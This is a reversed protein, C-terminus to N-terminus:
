WVLPLLRYRTVAVYSWWLPDIGMSREERVVRWIVTPVLLAVLLVSTWATSERSSDFCVAIACAVAMLMEGAYAPHRIISFPGTTVLCRYAPAIGFSRGLRVLATLTIITGLVFVAVLWYPWNVVPPARGVLAGSLVVSPLPVLLDQARLPGSARTRCVLLVAVVVHLLTVGVWLVPWAGKPRMAVARLVVITPLIVLLLRRGFTGTEHEYLSRTLRKSFSSTSNSTPLFGCALSSFSRSYKKRM